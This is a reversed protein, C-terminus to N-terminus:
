EAKIGTLRVVDAYRKLDAAMLEAMEEPRSGVVEYGVKQAIDKVDQQSLAGAVAASLARIVAAPTGARAVFGTQSPFHFDALGAAEMVTPVDPIQRNRARTVIAHMKLKGAKVNSALGAYGAYGFTVEGRLVATIVDAGGKYVIAQMDTGTALRLSEGTLHQYGAYGAVGFQVSKPNARAHAILQRLDNFPASDLTFVLLGSTNLVHAIPAFDRLPHYPLDARVAPAVGWHSSDIMVMLHGDAPANMLDLIAPIGGGGGKNEFVVPKGLADGMHKAVPRSVVDPGASSYPMILRLTRNPFGQAGASAAISSLLLACLARLVIHRQAM